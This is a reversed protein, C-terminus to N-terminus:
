SPVTPDHKKEDGEEGMGIDMFKQNIYDLQGRMLHILFDMQKETFGADLGLKILSAVPDEVKRDRAM